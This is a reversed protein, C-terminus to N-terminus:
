SYYAVRVDLWEALADFDGAERCGAIYAYAKTAAPDHSSSLHSLTEDVGAGVLFQIDFAVSTDFSTHKAKWLPLVDELDGLQYLLLACWYLNEFADDSASQDDGDSQRHTVEQQLLVRLLPALTEPPQPHMARYLQTRLPPDALREQAAHSSLWADTPESGGLLATVREDISPM